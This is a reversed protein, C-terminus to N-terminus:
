TNNPDTRPSVAAALHEKFGLINYGPVPKNIGRLEFDGAHEADVLPEVAAFLRQSIIIQGDKAVACLRSALNVVSGIATYTSRGKFGVLGLTAYGLEIGAAFGLEYQRKQWSNILSTMDNRIDITMRVARAAFDDHFVPDNFFVMLGDGAFFGVTGEHRHIQAGLIEYYEGLVAMIEEPEATESFATFRRLDAFVVAIERRHSSLLSEDKLVLDAVQPSLFRRLNSMRELEQVQQAVLTELTRNLDALEIAQSQIEDQYGKIRLLSTVRALLEAQNFPKLVFDDAGAEIAKLKEAEENATIMIVPLLRTVPDQRLRRCFEYGDMVPMVIDCLILDPHEVALMDLAVQGNTATLVRYGRPSLLADLVKLNTSTDDVALITAFAAKTM